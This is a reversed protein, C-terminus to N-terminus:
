FKLPLLTFLIMNRHTKLTHIDLTHQHVLVIQWNSQHEAIQNQTASIYCFNTKILFLRNDVKDKYIM